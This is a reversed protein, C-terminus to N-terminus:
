MKVKFLGEGGLLKDCFKRFGVKSGWVVFVLCLHIYGLGQAM